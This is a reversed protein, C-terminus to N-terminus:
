KMIKNYDDSNFLNMQARMLNVSKMAIVKTENLISLYLITNRSGSHTEKTRKIQKKVLEAYTDLLAARREKIMILGSYDNKQIMDNFDRYVDMFSNGISKLDEVQEASFGEHANDIFKYSSETIFRLSISIEYFYDVVQVYYQATDLSQHDLRQIIPLVENQRRRKSRGHFEDATKYLKNLAKRNEKFLGDLVGQYIYMINHVSEEIEKTCAMIIDHESIYADLLASKTKSERQKHIKAFQVFLFVILVLAGIVAYIGGYMLTFAVIASVIFAVFATLFWGSVVILVGSIRYVASERGWARDALSAGMAVMFTVYTTSLPLKLSTGLSILLASVTLIVSARILDFSADGAEEKSIPVFRSEIFDSFRKPTIAEVIKHVNIASRVLSRSASTSAFREAGDSQRALDVGTATVDRAKKSFWMSLIMIVGAGLLYFSNVTIPEALKGMTLTDLSGGSALVSAGIEYSSLGAMFVGIFNVLDNGAFSLALAATGALIIIRLINVKFVFQLLAMFVSWGIWTFVLITQINDSITTLAEKSILTTGKLGKFIAFYSIATLAIGAWSAGLYRFSKKYKFSFLLRSFYMIIMGVTFAIVVSVLIGSIITLAKGSNIYDLLVGTESRWINVLAVAVASGLLEFILSVTTSTPLGFTNFVDLLIVDTVMVALFLLMVEHFSFKAPYFVGSRAIEMMGSSFLSGVLVGASAVTLIMWLPAVKSGIASNLFNVADNAVGVVLDLAALGLLMMVIAIYIFDM